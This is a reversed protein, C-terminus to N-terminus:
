IFSMLKWKLRDDKKDNYIFPICEKTTDTQHTKLYRITACHVIKKTFETIYGRYFPPEEGVSWNKSRCTRIYIQNICKATESFIVSHKM